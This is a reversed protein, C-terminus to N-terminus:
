DCKSKKIEKSLDYITQELLVSDLRFKEYDNKNLERKHKRLETKKRKLSDELIKCEIPKPITLSVNNSRDAIVFLVPVMCATFALLIPLVVTKFKNKQKETENALHLSHLRDRHKSIKTGSNRTQNRDM